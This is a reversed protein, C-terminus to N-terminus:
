EKVLNFQHESFVLAQYTYIDADKWGDWGIMAKDQACHGLFEEKTWGTENYVQPLFTGGRLGKKIYIGDRGLVIDDISNIKKMPTLVSIEIELHSVEDSAVPMFRPDHIAAAVAMAEVTKYLANDADFHGICGRLEGDKKLTVFAGAPVLLELPLRDEDIVPYKGTQLYESITNRAIKLLETKGAKDLGFASDNSAKPVKTVCIGVYGVVKDKEGYPSDGSNRYIIDSYKIDTRGETINLLTLVSTWGCMATVENPTSGNECESKAELFKSISNSIVAAAMTHDSKVADEYAPYHSFDTSIVFLNEETFYPALAKALKSCTEKSEGGIIIPIITFPKKLWYQLFPLEVELAHESLHPQMNDNLIQNKEVLESALVDVPVRGLPTIFDGETYISAGNFFMTHSSGIIFVHKFERDRNIQSFVTAAVLGSYIYGAHPVIVALPEGSLTKTTLSFYGELLATLEEKSAPYFKGAVAPMRDIKEATQPQAKCASLALFALLSLTLKNQLFNM